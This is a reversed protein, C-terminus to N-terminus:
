HPRAFPASGSPPVARVEAGSARARAVTDDRSGNDAVIVTPVGRRKLGGVVVGISGEEDLAPIVACLGVWAPRSDGSSGSILPTM